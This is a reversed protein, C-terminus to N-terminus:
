TKYLDSLPLFAISRDNTKNATEKVRIQRKSNQTKTAGRCNTLDDNTNRSYKSAIRKEISNRDYGVQGFMSPNYILNNKLHWERYAVEADDRRGLRLYTEEREVEKRLEDTYKECNRRAKGVDNKQKFWLRHSLLRAVEQHGWLTAFVFAHKGSSDQQDVKAGHELFLQVQKMDGVTSALHLPTLGCKTASFYLAM